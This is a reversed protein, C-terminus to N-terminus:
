KAWAAGTTVTAHLPFIKEMLVAHVEADKDACVDSLVTIEFDKDAAERLTSLVVGSTAIGALVLHRISQARLLIELDSGSFASTRRKVVVIDEGVPAIAPRPDTLQDARARLRDNAEPAGLRFGIVVFIVPIQKRHAADVAAQAKGLYADKDPALDLIGSQVDM